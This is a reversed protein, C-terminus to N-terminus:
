GLVPMEGCIDAIVIEGIKTGEPLLSHKMSSASLKAQVCDAGAVEDPVSKLNVGAKEVKGLETVVKHNTHGMREHWLKKGEYTFSKQAAATLAFSEGSKPNYIPRGHSRCQLIGRNIRAYKKKGLLFVELDNESGIKVQGDFFYACLNYKDLMSLSITNAGFTPVYLVSLLKIRDDLEITGVKCFEISEGNGMIVRRPPSDYIHTFMRVDNFIHRSAGSDVLVKCQNDQNFVTRTM